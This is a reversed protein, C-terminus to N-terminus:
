DLLASATGPAAKAVKDKVYVVNEDVFKKVDAEVAKATAERKDAPV